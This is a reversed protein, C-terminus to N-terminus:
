SFWFPSFFLNKGVGATQRASGRLGGALLSAPRLGEAWCMRMPMAESGSTTSGASGRETAMRRTKMAMHSLSTPTCSGPAGQQPRQAFARAEMMAHRVVGLGRAEGGM